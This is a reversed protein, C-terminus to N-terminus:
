NESNENKRVFLIRSGAFDYYKMLIDMKIDYKEGESYGQHLYNEFYVFKPKDNVLIKNIDFDPAYHYKRADLEGVYNWSFWYYHPDKNFVGFPIDSAGLVTDSSESNNAMIKTIILAETPKVMKVHELLLFRCNLGLLLLVVVYAVFKRTQWIKIVALSIILANYLLLMKFYYLQVSFYLTRWLLESFFMLIITVAYINPKRYILYFCCLIGSLLIVYFCSFDVVRKQVNSAIQSNIIWNLQFYRELNGSFYLFMVASCLIVAPIVAAKALMKLGIKKTYILYIGIIGLPLALFIITQLFLFGITLFAACLSLDKQKEDRIFRFFYYVALMFFLQMFLDPKFQALTQQVVFSACYISIALLGTIRDSIFDKIIRYVVYLTAFSVLSMIGRIVFFVMINRNCMGVIPAFLYWMLPHHHEFFDKYPVQGNWVLWSAHIHELDDTIAQYGIFINILVSLASIGILFLLIRSFCKESM